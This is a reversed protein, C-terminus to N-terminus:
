STILRQGSPSIEIRLGPRTEIADLEPQTLKQGRLPMFSAEGEPQGSAAGGSVTLVLLARRHGQGTYPAVILGGDRTQEVWAYPITHAAATALVRDFPAADPAGQEGDGTIVTVQPYGAARLAARAHSAVAPDIEVSVVETGLAALCAANYGTGTGIELVRMGPKLRLADIMEAMIFPASSSSVPWTGDKLQTTIANDSAVLREWEGPDSARSVPVYRMDRVVWITEPIFPHRDVPPLRPFVSM